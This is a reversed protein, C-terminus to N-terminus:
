KNNSGNLGLMSNLYQQQQPMQLLAAAAKSFQDTLYTQQQALYTELHDINNQLDKNEQKISNLDVTFAGSTINTFSDLQTSLTNAFGNASAGQFFNQVASLNSTLASNLTASDVSLTGDKNMKIGLEYLSGVGTPVTQGGGALGNDTVSLTATSLVNAILGQTAGGATRYVDYSSAGSVQGWTVTNYHTPDLTDPGAGATSGVASVSLIGGQANKAVITYQQTGSGAGTVAVAPASPTATYTPASLLSSQLTRVVSDNALVGSSNSSTSFAFTSNLNTIISNYDNIFSNIASSIASTNPGVTLTVQTGPSSSNLNLTVGPIAGSVTNNASSVPVGDVTVSADLGHVGQTFSPFGTGTVNDISFDSAAGSANGIIALRAGSSDHIVSATVGINQQNIYSAVDDMSNVGSGVTVTASGGSAHIQFSGAPLAASSSSVASTYWAGTQALNTVTIIHKGSIATSGASGSVIGSNSSNAAQQVLIGLPDALAKMDSEFTSVAYSCQNLAGTQSQLTAQQAQWQREPARMGYLTGAVVASVDLGPTSAGALAQLISSANIGSITSM